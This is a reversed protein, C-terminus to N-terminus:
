QHESQPMTSSPPPPSKIMLPYDSPISLSPSLELIKDQRIFGDAETLDSILHTLKENKLATFRGSMIILPAQYLPPGWGSLAGFQQGRVTTHFRGSIFDHCPIEIVAIGSLSSFRQHAPGRTHVIRISQNNLHYLKENGAPMGELKLSFLWDSEFNKGLLSRAHHRLAIKLGGDKEVWYYAENPQIHQLSKELPGFDQRMFPMAYISGSGTCGLLGSAMCWALTYAIFIRLPIHSSCVINWWGSVRLTFCSVPMFSSVIDKAVMESRSGGTWRRPM